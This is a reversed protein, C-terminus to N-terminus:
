SEVKSLFKQMETSVSDALDNASYETSGSLLFKAMAGVAYLDCSEPFEHVVKELEIGSLGRIEPATFDLQMKTMPDMSPMYLFGIDTVLVDDPCDEDIFV